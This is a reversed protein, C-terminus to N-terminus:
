HGSTMGCRPASLDYTVLSRLLALSSVQCLLSSLLSRSALPGPSLVRM